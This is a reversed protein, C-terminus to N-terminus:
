PDASTDGAPQQAQGEAPPLKAEVEDFWAKAETAAKRLDEDVNRARIEYKFRKPANASLMRIAGLAADSVRSWGSGNHQLRGPSGDLNKFGEIVYTDKEHNDVLLIIRRISRAHRLMALARCAKAKVFNNEDELLPGILKALALRRKDKRVGLRSLADIARGRVGPNAHTLLGELKLQIMNKDPVLMLKQALHFLARSVVTAEKAELASVFPRISNADRGFSSARALADLAALKGEPKEHANALKTLTAVVGADPASGNVSSRAAKIAAAQIKPNPSTLHAVVTKHYRADVTTQTKSKSSGTFAMRMAGLAALTLEPSESTAALYVFAHANDPRMVATLPFSAGRKETALAAAQKVISEDFLAALKTKPTTTAAADVTHTQAAGGCGGRAIGIITALFLVVLCAGM